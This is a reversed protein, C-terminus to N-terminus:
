SGPQQRSLSAKPPPKSQNNNLPNLAVLEAIAFEKKHKHHFDLYESHENRNAEYLEHANLCASSLRSFLPDTTSSLCNICANTRQGKSGLSFRLACLSLRVSVNICPVEGRVLVLYSNILCPSALYSRDIADSLRCAPGYM